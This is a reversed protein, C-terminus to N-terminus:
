TTSRTMMRSFSRTLNRARARGDDLCIQLVQRLIRLKTRNRLIVAIEEAAHIEAIRDIAGVIRASFSLSLSSLM